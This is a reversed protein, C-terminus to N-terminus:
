VWFTNPVLTLVVNLLLVGGGGGGGGGVICESSDAVCNVNVWELFTTVLTELCSEQGNLWWRQIGTNLLTNVVISNGPRGQM